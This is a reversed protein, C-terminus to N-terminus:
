VDSRAARDNTRPSPSGRPRSLPLRRAVPHRRLLRSHPLHRAHSANRSRGRPRTGATSPLFWTVLICDGKLQDTAFPPL